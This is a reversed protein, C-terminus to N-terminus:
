SQEHSYQLDPVPVINFLFQSTSIEVTSPYGEINIAAGMNQFLPVSVAGATLGSADQRQGKFYGPALDFLPRM